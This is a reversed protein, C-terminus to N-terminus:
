LYHAGFPHPVRPGGPAANSGGRSTGGVERALELVTVDEWGARALRWAASLGAVGGGVVVVRRRERAEASGSRLTGDRLAHGVGVGDDVYGGPISRRAGAAGSRSCSGLAGGGLLLALTGRAVDRRSPRSGRTM